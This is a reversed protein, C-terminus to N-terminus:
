SLALRIFGTAMIMAIFVVVSLGIVKLTTLIDDEIM